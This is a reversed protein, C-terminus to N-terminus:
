AGFVLPLGAEDIRDLTGTHVYSGVHGIDLWAAAHIKGGISRYSECFAFDEAVYSGNIMSSDFFVYQERGQFASVPAGAEILREFVKRKIFMLGCGVREVEFPSGLNIPAPKMAFTSLDAGLYALKGAEIAPNNKVADRINDWNITKKPYVAGIVDLDCDLMRLADRPAFSMDGDIFLLHSHTTNKLFYNVIDNRASPILSNNSSHIYEWLIGDQSAEKTFRLLSNAYVACVQGNYAPTAILISITM